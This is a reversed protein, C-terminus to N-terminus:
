VTEKPFRHAMRHNSYEGDGTVDKITKIFDPFKITESESDLEVELICTKEWEPYVDVEYLKSEYEFTLRTKKLPHSGDEIMKSLRLFENEAIERESEIVSMYSIRMKTNETYEIRGDSFERKRIRHTKESDRLYIQTIKSETFGASSRIAEMDPKEIVYKRETEIKQM